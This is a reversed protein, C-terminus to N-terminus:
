FKTEGIESTLIHIFSHLQVMVEISDSSLAIISNFINSTMQRDYPPDPTM